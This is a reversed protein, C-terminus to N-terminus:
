VQGWNWGIPRFDDDKQGLANNRTQIAVLRCAYFEKINKWFFSSPENQGHARPVRAAESFHRSHCLPAGRKESVAGSRYSRRTSKKPVGGAGLATRPQDRNQNCILSRHM